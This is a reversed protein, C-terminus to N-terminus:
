ICLLKQYTVKLIDSTLPNPGRSSFSVVAPALDDRVEESKLITATPKSFFVFTIGHYKEIM